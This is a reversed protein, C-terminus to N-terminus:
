KPPPENRFYVQYTFGEQCIVDAQFGDGGAKYSIRLKDGHRGQFGIIQEVIAIPPENCFYSQYTFGEQCIVDAQFGDGEAKYSIRLKDGHRGQFGITQEDIAISEGLDVSQPGVYNIWKILMSVKFLPNAKRCPIIAQPDQCAFFARFEKFRRAGSCGMHHHLYQNGHVPDKFPSKLQMELRSSPNISNWIYLGLFQRIEKVSFITWEPYCTGGRGANALQGKLNTFITLQHQSLFLPTTFMLHPLSFLRPLSWQILIGQCAM